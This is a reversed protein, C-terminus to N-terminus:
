LDEYRTGENDYIELVMVGEGANAHGDPYYCIYQDGQNECGLGHIAAFAEVISWGAETAMELTPYEIELNVTNCKDPDTYYDRITIRYSRKEM